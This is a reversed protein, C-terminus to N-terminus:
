KNVLWFIFRDGKNAILNLYKLVANLCESVCNHLERLPADNDIHLIPHDTTFHSSPTFCHSPHQTTMTYIRIFSSNGGRQQSDSQTATAIWQLRVAMM